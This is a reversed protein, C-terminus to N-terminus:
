FDAVMRMEAAADTVAAPVDKLGSIVSSVCARWIIELDAFYAPNQMGVTNPYAELFLDLGDFQFPYSQPVNITSRAPINSCVESFYRKNFNEGGSWAALLAAEDYHKTASSVQMSAWASTQRDSYKTPIYAASVDTHNENALSYVTWLGTSIMAVRGNMFEAAYDLNTWDASAWGNKVADAYFQMLERSADSDFAVDTSDDNLYGTGFSYLWGTNTYYTDPLFFAYADTNKEILDCAAVFEDWTWSGTPITAGAQPFIENNIWLVDNEWLQLFGYYEGDHMALKRLAESVNAEYESQWESNKELFPTLPLVMQNAFFVNEKEGPCYVLDPADGSAYMTQIKTTYDSWDSNPIYVLEVEINPYEKTFDDYISALRDNGNEDMIYATGFYAVKLTIKEEASALPLTLILTLVLLLSLAKKM